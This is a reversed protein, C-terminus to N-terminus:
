ALSSTLEGLLPEGPRFDIVAQGVFTKRGLPSHREEARSAEHLQRLQYGSRSKTGKSANRLAHSKGFMARTEACMGMFFECAHNLRWRVVQPRARSVLSDIKRDVERRRSPVTDEPPCRRYFGHHTVVISEVV